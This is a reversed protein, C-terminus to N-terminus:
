PRFGRLELWLYLRDPPLIVEGRGPSGDPCRSPISPDRTGFYRLATRANLLRLTVDRDRDYLLLDEGYPRLWSWGGYLSFSLGQEKITMRGTLDATLSLDHHKTQLAGALDWNSEFVIAPGRYPCVGHVVLSTHPELTPLQRDIDTLVAQEEIWARQWYSGLASTTVFGLFCLVAVLGAFCARRGSPTRLMTSVLGVAGVLIAAVGVSPMMAVRNGIGTSTFIVRSTTLFVSYGLVFVVIGALCLLKWPRRASRVSVPEGRADAVRLLYAFVVVGLLIGVGLVWPQVHKSGWWAAYPLGVGYSGANTISSGFALRRLHLLVSERTGFFEATNLKYVLVSALVLVHGCVLALAGLPGLRTSLGEGFRLRTHIQILLLSFPFLPLITENGLASIVVALVSIFIWGAKARGAARTARLGALLSLLFFALSVGYHFAAFWFRDTSYNPLTVFLVPFSLAVVRPLRLERLVQYGLIAIAAFVAANFLHYGLPELGFTRYLVAQYAIQTPRAQIRIADNSAFQQHVLGLISQDDSNSLVSLFAWDDSYFGLGAIYPSFTAAVVFVLLLSDIM